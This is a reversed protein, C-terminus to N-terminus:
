KGVLALAGRCLHTGSHNLATQPQAQAPNRPNSNPIGGPQQKTTTKQDRDIARQVEPRPVAWKDKFWKSLAEASASARAACTKVVTIAMKQPQTPRVWPQGAYM